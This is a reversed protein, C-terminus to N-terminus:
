QDENYFNRVWNIADMEHRFSAVWATGGTDVEYVHWRGWWGKYVEMM